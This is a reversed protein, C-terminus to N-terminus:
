RLGLVVPEATQTDTIVEVDPHGQVLTSPYEISPRGALTIRFVARHREGGACYLRLKRSALIDKMGLTVGMPPVAASCGGSCSISQVVVSDAGLSVLRTRSNRLEDVSIRGWRSLPPENFAVHGHYGIGGYCCDIGGVEAIKESIADIDFPDPTFCQSQPIRIAPDLKSFVQSEMYGRFSMPHSAPIPRGEWDLFEDMSFVYVSKWSLGRRNSEAVVQDYQVVPGVPLILRTPEGAENHATIEALISKAFDDLIDEPSSVTRYPVKTLKPLHPSAILEVLERNTMPAEEIADHKSAM